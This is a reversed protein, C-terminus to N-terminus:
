RPSGPNSPILGETRERTRCSREEWCKANTLKRKRFDLLLHPVSGAETLFLLQPGSPRRAQCLSQFKLKMPGDSVLTGTWDWFNAYFNDLKVRFFKTFCKVCMGHTQFAVPSFIYKEAGTGRPSESTPLTPVLAVYLCDRIIELGEHCHLELAVAMFLSLSNKIGWFLLITPLNALKPPPRRSLFEPCNGSHTM